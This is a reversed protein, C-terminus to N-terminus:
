DVREFFREFATDLSACEPNAREWRAHEDKACGIDGDACSSVASRREAISSQGSLRRRGRM